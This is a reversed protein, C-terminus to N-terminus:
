QTEKIEVRLDGCAEYHLQTGLGLESHPQIGIDLNNDM